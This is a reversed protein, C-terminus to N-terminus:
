GNGVRRQQKAAYKQLEAVLQAKTKPATVDIASLDLSWVVTNKRVLLDASGVLGGRVEPPTYAYQEDGYRRLTVPKNSRDQKLELKMQAFVRRAKSPSEVTIVVGGLELGERYSATYYADKARVGLASLAKVLSAPGPGFRFTAGRPVDSKRLLLSMPDKIAPAALATAAAASAAVLVLTIARFRM